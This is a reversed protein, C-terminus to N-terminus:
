KTESKAATASLESLDEASLRRMTKILRARRKTQIKLDKRIQKQETKLRRRTELLKSIKDDM